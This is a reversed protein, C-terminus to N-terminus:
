CESISCRWSPEGERHRPAAATRGSAAIAQEKGGSFAAVRAAMAGTGGRDVAARHRRDRLHEAMRLDAATRRGNSRLSVRRDTSGHLEGHDDIRPPPAPRLRRDALRSGSIRRRHRSRHLIELDDVRSALGCLRQGFLCPRLDRPQRDAAAQARCPGRDARSIDGGASDRHEVVLLRGHIRPGAPEVRADAVPRRHLHLQRRVRRLDAGLWLAVVRIQLSGIRQNELATEVPSVMVETM